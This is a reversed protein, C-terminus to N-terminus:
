KRDGHARPSWYGAPPYGWGRGGDLGAVVTGVVRGNVHAVLFLEPQATLQRRIMSAPENWPPDDPFVDSWLAVVQAHDKSEYPRIEAPASVSEERRQPRLLIRGFQPAGPVM